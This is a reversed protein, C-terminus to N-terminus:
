VLYCLVVVFVLVCCVGIEIWCFCLWVEVYVGFYYDFLDDDFVVVSCVDYNVVLLIVVCDVCM